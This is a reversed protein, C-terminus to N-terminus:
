AETFMFTGSHNASLCPSPPSVPWGFLLSFLNIQMYFSPPETTIFPQTTDQQGPGGCGPIPDVGGPDPCGTNPNAGQITQHCIAANYANDFRDSACLEILSHCTIETGGSAGCCALPATPFTTNFLGSRWSGDVPNYVVTTAGGPFTVNLPSHVPQTFNCLCGYGDAPLVNGGVSVPHNCLGGGTFTGTQTKYRTATFTWNYTGTPFYLGTVSVQSGSVIWNTITITGVPGVITMSPDLFPGCAAIFGIGTNPAPINVTNAGCHLTIGTMYAVVAGSSNKVVVDVVTSGSAPFSLSYNGTGSSGSNATALVTTTGAAYFTIVQGNIGHNLCDWTVGSVTTITCGQHREAAWRYDTWRCLLYDGTAPLGPGVLDVLVTSTTDVTLTAPGREVEAGTVTVPNVTLFKGVAISATATAVKGIFARSGTDPTTALERGLQDLRYRLRDTEDRNDTM